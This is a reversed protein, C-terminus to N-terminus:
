SAPCNRECLTLAFPMVTRATDSGRKYVVSLGHTTAVKSMISVAVYVSETVAGDGGCQAFIKKTTKGLKGLDGPIIGQQNYSGHNVVAAWSTIKMGGTPRVTDVETPTASGTGKVCLNGVYVSYPQAATIDPIAASASLHSARLEPGTAAPSSSCAALLM